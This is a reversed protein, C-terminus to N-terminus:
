FSSSFFQLLLQQYYFDDNTKALVMSKMLTLRKDDRVKFAMAWLATEELTNKEIISLASIDTKTAECFARVAATRAVTYNHQWKNKLLALIKRNIDLVDLPKKGPLLNLAINSETFRLLTKESSRYNKKTKIKKYESEALKFLERHVPRFGFKHYFWFAGSKIGDYNDLGFQYPEIEFYSNGMKQHFIRILQTLLYGSEGSRYPEFINMGLRALRGFTWAGGYSVPMGNKFFTFGFYTELPLQREPIMSYVSLSLGRGVDYMRITDKRLFTAPDIERVTLAMANRICKYLVNKQEATPNIEEVPKSIYTGPDFKKLIEDHYYLEGPDIRNYARSFKENRPVLKVYASVKDNFLEKLLPRDAISELQGTLFQMYNKKRIGLEALLNENDLGATTEAKFLTPLTINLVENLTLSPDYFSDFEVSMDKHKLLWQMFDPSFRTIIPAFPLGENEAVLKPNRSNKKAYAVVRKLESSVLKKNAANDLYALMFLLMDHYLLLDKGGAVPQIALQKLIFTKKYKSENDFLHVIQKLKGLLNSTKSAM